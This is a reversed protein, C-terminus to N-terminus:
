ALVQNGHLCLERKAYVAPFFRESKLFRTARWRIKELERGLGLSKLIRAVGEEEEM